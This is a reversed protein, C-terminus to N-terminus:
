EQIYIFGKWMCRNVKAKRNKERKKLGRELGRMKEKREKNEKKKKKRGKKGESKREEGHLNFQQARKAINGLQCDAWAWNELNLM